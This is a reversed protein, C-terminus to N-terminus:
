LLAASRGPALRNQEDVAILLENVDEPGADKAADDDHRERGACAVFVAQLKEALAAVQAETPGM